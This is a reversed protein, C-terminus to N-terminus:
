TVLLGAAGTALLSGLITVMAAPGGRHRVPPIVVCILAAALPAILTVLALSVSPNM